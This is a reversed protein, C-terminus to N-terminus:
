IAKEFGVTKLIIATMDDTTEQCGHSIWYSILSEISALYVELAYHYPIQYHNIIIEQFGDITTLFQYIFDKLIQSFNLYSSNAMAAIFPLNDIIYALAEKLVLRTDTFIHPDNLLQYLDDLTDNKLHTMMDHKDRYHLYFTGRNVGAKKTLDSVTIAEFSKETLLNILAQKLYAKTPTHRTTM